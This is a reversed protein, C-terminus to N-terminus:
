GRAPVAHPQIESRAWERRILYALPGVSGLFLTLLLFPIASIGREQADAVVWISVLSLSIVLDVMLLVGVLNSLAAQFMGVFGYTYVAEASLVSFAVLVLGILVQKAKM